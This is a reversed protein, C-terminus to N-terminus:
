PCAADVNCCTLDKKEHKRKNKAIEIDKKKKRHSGHEPKTFAPKVPSAGQAINNSSWSVLNDHNIHFLFIGMNTVFNLGFTTFQTLNSIGLQVHYQPLKRKKSSIFGLRFTHYRWEIVPWCTENFSPPSVCIRSQGCLTVTRRIKNALPKTAENESRQFGGFM